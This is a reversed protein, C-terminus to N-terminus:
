AALAYYDPEQRKKTTAFLATILALPISLMVNINIIAVTASVTNISKVAAQIDAITIGNNKMEQSEFIEKVEPQSLLALNQQVFNGHDFFRFYLYVVIAM